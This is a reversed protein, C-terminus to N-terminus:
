PPPFLENLLADLTLGLGRALHVFTAKQAQRRGQELGALTGVGLDCRSALEEQTLGARERLAKIRAGV